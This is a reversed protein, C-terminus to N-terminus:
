SFLVTLRRFAASNKEKRKLPPSRLSPAKPHLHPLETSLRVGDSFGMGVRARGKFPLSYFLLLRIAHDFKELVRPLALTKGQKILGCIFM